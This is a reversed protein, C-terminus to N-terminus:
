DHFVVMGIAGGSGALAIAGPILIGSSGGGGPIKPNGITNTYYILTATTHNYLAANGEGGSEPMMPANGADGANVL